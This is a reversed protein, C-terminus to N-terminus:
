ISRKIEHKSALTPLLQDLKERLLAERWGSILDPKLGQAEIEDIDFWVWKLVQNMQKKSALMAVPINNVTATEEVANKILQLSGKYGSYDLLRSAKPPCEEISLQSAERCISLLTEGYMRAPKSYLFHCEFLQANSQPLKSAVEYMADEKVVFNLSKNQRRAEELRWKALAKFAALNRANLKWINKLTFYAFDPSVPSAKKQGLYAIEEYVWQTQKRNDTLDVLHEYVAMLHTVDAAAYSLQASSLPRQMWDTRSEGKDLEISFLKEVLNAYGVSVGLELLGAAFQTDYVPHPIVNLHHWLAELDESCSHAVKVVDPNALVEAFANLDDLAVPDILAVQKGDFVQILGLLPTLTQTRVFETDIALVRAQAYQACLDNFEDQKDIYIYSDIDKYSHM